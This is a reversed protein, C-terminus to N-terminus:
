LRSLNIIADWVRGRGRTTREMPQQELWRRVENRKLIEQKAIRMCFNEMRGSSSLPVTSHFNVYASRKRHSNNFPRSTSRAARKTVNQNIQQQHRLISQRFDSATLPSILPRFEMRNANTKFSNQHGFRVQVYQVYVWLREMFAISLSGLQTSFYNFGDLVSALLLSPSVVPTVAKATHSVDGPSM